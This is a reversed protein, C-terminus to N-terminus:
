RDAADALLGESRYWEVTRRITDSIPTYTVGLARTARTGDYRHGHLLTRALEPCMPMERRLLLTTVAGAGGAATAAVRPVRRIRRPLGTESRLLGVAQRATLTAGSLIYREGREGREAAALHGATCDDVDVVSLSTDIIPLKGRLLDLLLRASGSTRGPGQVSSPNVCVVDVGLERGVTFVRQEGLFKSEEYRSLFRGRHPSDETGVAGTAEGITAASSTHVVRAVGAAAAARVINEAGGVNTRFLASPDRVCMANVGAANFVVHCNAMAVPLSAPDLVDGSIPRAGNETVAQAATSSRALGLVEDGREALARILLGGVLGSGGTVLAKM